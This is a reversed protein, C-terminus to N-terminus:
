VHARGIEPQVPAGRRERLYRAVSDRFAPLGGSPGYSFVGQAVERALAERIAPAAAFDPDAATLPIVGTPLEAWRLNFARSRLAELPVSADSFTDVAGSM